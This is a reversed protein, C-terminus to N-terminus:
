NADFLEPEEHAGVNLARLALEQAHKLEDNDNLKVSTLISLAEDAVSKYLKLWKIYMVLENDINIQVDQMSAM